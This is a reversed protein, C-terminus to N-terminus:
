FINSDMLAFPYLSLTFLTVSLQTRSNLERFLSSVGALCRREQLASTSGEMEAKKREQVVGVRSYRVGVLLWLQSLSKSIGLEGM